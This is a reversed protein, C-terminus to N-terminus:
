RTPPIVPSLWHAMWIEDVWQGRIRYQGFRRGEERYGLSQYLRIAVDNTAFVALSIKQIGVQRAWREATLLLGRGIGRGRAAPFLAMGFTATHRNKQLTGRVMELSGLTQGGQEAVLLCQQLPNLRELFRAQQEETLQSGEDAIFIEERGVENLLAVLAGADRPEAMRVLYDAGARDQWVTPSVRGSTEGM